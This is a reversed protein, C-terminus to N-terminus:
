GSSSVHAHTTPSFHYMLKKEAMILKQLFGAMCECVKPMEFGASRCLFGIKLSLRRQKYVTYATQRILNQINALLVLHVTMELFEDIQKTGLKKTKKKWILISSTNCM